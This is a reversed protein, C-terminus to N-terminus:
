QKSEDKASEIEEFLTLEVRRGSELEKDLVYKKMRPLIQEMAEIYLRAKTISPSRRYEKAMAVFKHADGIAQNILRVKYAQADAILKEAMGRAEPLRENRYIYAENILRQREERARTVEHFAGVVEPPPSVAQFNVSVISVGAGLENLWRQLLVKIEGQVAFRGYTLVSDIPKGAMVHTLAAEALAKILGEADGCRLAYAVIDAVGYQVVIGINIINADGSLFQVLRRMGIRRAVGEIAEIGVGIRRRQLVDVKIVKGFPLPLRWHVGPGVPQLTVLRGFLLIIARENARVIYVGSLMYCVVIVLVVVMWRSRWVAMM